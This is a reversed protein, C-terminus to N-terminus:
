ITPTPLVSTTPPLSLEASITRRSVSPMTSWSECLSSHANSTSPLLERSVSSSPRVM